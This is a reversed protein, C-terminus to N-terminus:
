PAVPLNVTTTINSPTIVCTIDTFEFGLEPNPTATLTITQDGPTTIDYGETLASISGDAAYTVSGFSSTAAMKPPIVYATAAGNGTGFSGGGGGLAVPKKYWQQANAGIAMLQNVGEDKAAEEASANFMGIGAVIAIGVIIVGLVLLLLQQQGM